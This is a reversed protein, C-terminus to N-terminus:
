SPWTTDSEVNGEASLRAWDIELPLGPETGLLYRNGQRKPARGFFAGPPAQLPFLIECLTAEPATAAFLVGLEPTGPLTLECGTQQALASVALWEDVSALKEPQPQLYRAGARVLSPFVKASRESEGVAAPIPAQSAYAELAILDASHVPEEFWAVNYEAIRNAFDVAQEVSLAQNADVAIRIDPGVAKRVARVRAVDDEIFRGWDRAVKMKLTSFGQEAYGLMERVLEEHSLHTSGGSAYAWVFDRTAGLMRHLPIGRRRAALDHLALDLTGVTSADPGRFGSNRVSWYLASYHESYSRRGATLLRGILAELTRSGATLAHGWTGDADMLSITAFSRSQFPGMSSDSFPQPLRVARASQYRAQVIEFEDTLM